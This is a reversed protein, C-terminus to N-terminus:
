AGALIRGKESAIQATLTADGGNEKLLKGLQSLYASDVESRRKNFTAKMRDYNRVYTKRSRHLGRPLTEPPNPPIAGNKLQQAEVNVLKVLNLNGAEAAKSEAATLEATYITQLKLLEKGRDDSTGAALEKQHKALTELQPPLEAM